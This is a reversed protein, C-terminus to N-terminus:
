VALPAKYVKDLPGCGGRIHYSGTLFKLILTKLVVKGGCKENYKHKVVVL